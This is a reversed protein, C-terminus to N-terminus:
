NPLEGFLTPRVSRLWECFWAIRQDDPRLLPETKILDGIDDCADKEPDHLTRAILAKNILFASGPMTAWSPRRAERLCQLIDARFAEPNEDVLQRFDGFDRIIEDVGLGKEELDLSSYTPRWFTLWGIPKPNRFRDKRMTYIEYEGYIAEVSPIRVGIDVPEGFMGRRKSMQILIGLQLNAIVDQLVLRRGSGRSGFVFFDNGLM